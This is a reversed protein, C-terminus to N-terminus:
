SRRTMVMLFHDGADRVLPLMGIRDDLSEGLACVSRLRREVGVMYPPPSFIRLGRYSTLEFDDAFAQYFQRPTFYRTWVTEGNLPVPVATTRWRLFARAWRAHGVYYAIEWPCIRGIVSAVIRGGPRLLAACARATDPLDPACNLAGLDSYIGDIQEGVLQHLQHIGLVRVAGRNEGPVRPTRGPPPSEPYLEPGSVSQALRARTREVMAPSWDVALVSYGRAALYAADIGTGCGLDLLRAGESFTTTLMRWMQARMRQIVLNNGAPGDYAAAARDFARRTEELRVEESAM